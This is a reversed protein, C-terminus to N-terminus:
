GPEEQALRSQASSRWPERAQRQAEPEQWTLLLAMLSSFPRSTVEPVDRPQRQLITLFPSLTANFGNFAVRCCGPMM